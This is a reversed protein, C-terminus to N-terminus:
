EMRIPVVPGLHLVGRIKIEGRQVAVVLLFLISDSGELIPEQLFVREGLSPEEALRRTDASHHDGKVAEVVIDHTLEGFDVLTSTETEAPAQFLPAKFVLLGQGLAVIVEELCASEDGATQIDVDDKAVIEPGDKVQVPVRGARIPLQVRTLIEGVDEIGLASRSADSILHAGLEVQDVSPVAGDARLILLPRLLLEVADKAFICVPTLLTWVRGRCSFPSASTVM